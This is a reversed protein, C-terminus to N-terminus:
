KVNPATPIKPDSLRISKKVSRKSPASIKAGITSTVATTMRNILVLASIPSHFLNLYLCNWKVIGEKAGDGMVAIRDRWAIPHFQRWSRGAHVANRHKGYHPDIGPSDSDEEPRTMDLTSRGLACGSIM